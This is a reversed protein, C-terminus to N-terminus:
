LRKLADIRDALPPHTSFLRLLSKGGSIKFANLAQSRQDNEGGGDVIMKLKELGAIIAQKGCLKAAGADARFERHRSFWMAIGSALVSFVIQCV